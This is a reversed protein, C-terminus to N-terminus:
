DEENMEAEELNLGANEDNNAEFTHMILSNEIENM